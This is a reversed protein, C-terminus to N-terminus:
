PAAPQGTPQRSRGTNWLMFAALLVGYLFNSSVLEIAHARQVVPPQFPNPFLLAANMLVTFTLGTALILEWARGKHMRIIISGVWAWILGRFLAVGYLWPTDRWVNVLQAPFSGPDTGGYFAPVGPTRWAVYYGFTFYVIVYLLAGLALRWAWETPAWQLRAIAQEQSVPEKMKGLIWVALISFPIGMILGQLLTANVMGAPMQSSVAPFALLEIWTLFAFVMYFIIFLAGALRWGHWRSRLALYALMLSMILSAVPLAVTAQQLQEPTFMQAVEPPSTLQSALTFLVSYVVALAILALMTQVVRKM